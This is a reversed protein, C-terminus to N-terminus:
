GEYIRGEKQVLESEELTVKEESLIPNDPLRADISDKRPAKMKMGFKIRVM